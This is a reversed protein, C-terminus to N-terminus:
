KRLEQQWLPRGKPIDEPPPVKKEFYKRENLVAFASPEATTNHYEPVRYISANQTYGIEASM